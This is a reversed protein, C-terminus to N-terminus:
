LVTVHIQFLAQDGYTFALVERHTEHWDSVTSNIMQSSVLLGAVLPEAIGVFRVGEDARWATPVKPVSCHHPRELLQTFPDAQFTSRPSIRAQVIKTVGKGTIMQKTGVLLVAINVIGDMFQRDIEAM